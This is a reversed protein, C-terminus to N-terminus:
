TINTCGTRRHSVASAHEGACQTVCVVLQAVVVLEDVLVEGVEKGVVLDDGVERHAESPPFIAFISDQLSKFTKAPEGQQQEGRQGVVARAEQRRQLRMDRQGKHCRREM